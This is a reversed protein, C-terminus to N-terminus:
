ERRRREVLVGLYWLSLGLGFSAFPQWARTEGSFMGGLGYFVFVLIGTERLFEGVMEIVRRRAVAPM